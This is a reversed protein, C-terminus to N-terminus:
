HTPVELPKWVPLGSSKTKLVDLSVGCVQDHMPDKKRRFLALYTESRDGVRFGVWEMGFDDMFKELGSKSVIQRNQGPYYTVLWPSQVYGHDKIADASIGLFALIGGKALYPLLKEILSKPDRAKELFENLLISEYKIEGELPEVEIDGQSLTVLGLKEQGHRVLFESIEIGTVQWGLQLYELLFHGARSGIELLNGKHKLFEGLTDSVTKATTKIDAQKKTAREIVSYDSNVLIQESPNMALVSGCGSCARYVISSKMGVIEEGWQGCFPCRRRREIGSTSCPNKIEVLGEEKNLVKSFAALVQEPSLNTADLCPTASIVRSYGEDEMRPCIDVHQHCPVCRRTSQVAICNRFHEVRLRADFAGFLAVQRIGLAQAVHLFASDVTIATKCHSLIAASVRFPFRTPGPSWLPAKSLGSFRTDGLIVCQYGQLILQNLVVQAPDVGYTRNRASAQLHLAIIPKNLDFGAHQLELAGRVSEEQTLVFRPALDEPVKMRCLKFPIEYANRIEAEAHCEISHTLSVADDYLKAELLYDEAVHSYVTDPADPHHDFIDHYTNLHPTALTIKVGPWLNRLHRLFPTIMLLDGLAGTRIVFFSCRHRALNEQVMDDPTIDRFGRKQLYRRELLSDVQAIGDRIPFYGLTGTTTYEPTNAKLLWSM